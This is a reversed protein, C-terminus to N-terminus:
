TQPIVTSAMLSAIAPNGSSSRCESPPRPSCKSSLTLASMEYVAIDPIVFPQFNPSLVIERDESYLLWVPIVAIFHADFGQLSPRLGSFLDKIVSAALGMKEFDELVIVWQRGNQHKRLLRNSETLVSNMLDVLESVFSLEYEEKGQERTEGLKINGFLKVFPINVGGGLEQQDIRLRKTWKRALHDRVGDLMKELDTDEFGIIAPSSVEYVLKILILLLVDYFRLTGPNLESTVSLRLPRFRTDLDLLLRSLETTKGVGPHGLLFAKLPLQHAHADELCLRLQGIRDVGRLRNVEGQYFADLEERTELAEPQLTQPIEALVTAPQTRLPRRNPSLPALM